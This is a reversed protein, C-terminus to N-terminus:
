SLGLLPGVRQEVTVSFMVSVFGVFFLGLISILFIMLFIMMYKRFLTLLVGGMGVGLFTLIENKLNSLGSFPGIREEVPEYFMVSVFCLLLLGLVCILFITFFKM